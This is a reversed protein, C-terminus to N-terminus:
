PNFVFTVNYCSRRGVGCEVMARGETVNVSMQYYPYQDFIADEPHEPSAWFACLASVHTLQQANYGPYTQEAYWYSSNPNPSPKCPNINILPQAGTPAQASLVPEAVGESAGNRSLDVLEPKPSEQGCSFSVLALTTALKRM